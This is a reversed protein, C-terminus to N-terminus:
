RHDDDEFFSSVIGSGSAREVRLTQKLTKGNVTISILYDGPQVIPAQTRAGGPLGFGGGGGFGGGRPNLLQVIQMAVNPDTIGAAAAAGAAGARGGGGGGGRQAAAQEGPRPNWVTSQGLGGAGAGMFMQAMQQM